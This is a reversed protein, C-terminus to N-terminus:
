KVLENSGNTGQLSLEANCIYVNSNDKMKVLM